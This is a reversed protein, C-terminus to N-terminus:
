RIEKGESLRATVPTPHHYGAPLQHGLYECTQRMTTDTAYILNEFSIVYAEPINQDFWEDTREFLSWFHNIRDQYVNYHDLPPEHRFRTFEGTREARAASTAQAEVDQRVIRITKHPNTELIARDYDSPSVVKMGFIGDVTRRQFVEDMYDISETHDPTWLATLIQELRPEYYEGPVGLGAQTLLDCLLSSGTRPTGVILYRDTALRRDAVPVDRNPLMLYDAYSRIM